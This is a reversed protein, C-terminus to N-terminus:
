CHSGTRGGVPCVHYPDGACIDNNYTNFLSDNPLRKPSCKTSNQRATALNWSRQMPICCNKGEPISTFIFHTSGHLMSLMTDLYSPFVLYVSSAKTMYYCRHHHPSLLGDLYVDGM